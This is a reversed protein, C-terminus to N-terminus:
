YTVPELVAPNEKLYARIREVTRLPSEVLVRKGAILEAIGLERPYRPIIHLHLHPISAGAHAGMNYGINYASPHYLVDLINLFCNTLTLYREGEKKTLSRLDEVHRKPFIMLHGPNYPYLNVVGIFFPDQYIQLDVKQPSGSAISCLICSDDKLGMVYAMKEFNFFYEM